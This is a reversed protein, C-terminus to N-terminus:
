LYDGVALSFLHGFFPSCHVAFLPSHSLSTICCHLKLGICRALHSTLWLGTRSSHPRMPINVLLVVRQSSLSTPTRVFRVNSCRPLLYSISECGARLKSQAFGSWAVSVSLEDNDWPVEGRRWRAGPVRGAVLVQSFFVGLAVHTKTVVSFPRVNDLFIPVGPWNSDPFSPPLSPLTSM